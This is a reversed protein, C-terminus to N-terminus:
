LTDLFKEAYRASVHRLTSAIVMNGNRDEFAAMRAYYCAWDADTEYRTFPKNSVASVASAIPVAVSAMANTANDIVTRNHQVIALGLSIVATGILLVFIVYALFLV